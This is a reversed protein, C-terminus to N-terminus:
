KEGHSFFTFNYPEERGHWIWRFSSSHIKKTPRLYFLLPQTIGLQLTGFFLPFNWINSFFVGAGNLVIERKLFFGFYYIQFVWGPRLLEQREQPLLEPQQLGAPLGPAPLWLRLRFVTVFEFLLKIWKNLKHSTQCVWTERESSRTDWSSLSSSESSSPPLSPAPTLPTTWASTQFLFICYLSFTLDGYLYKLCYFFLLTKELDSTTVHSTYVNQGMKRYPFVISADFQLKQFESNSTFIRPENEWTDDLEEAYLPDASAFSLLLASASLFLLSRM